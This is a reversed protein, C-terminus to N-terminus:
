LRGGLRNTPDFGCDIMNEVVQWTELICLKEFYTLDEEPEIDFYTTTTGDPKLVGNMVRRYDKRESGYLGPEEDFFTEHFGHCMDDKALMGVKPNAMIYRQMVPNAFRIQEQKLSTIATDSMAGNAQYLLEKSRMIAEDSHVMNYMAQTNNILFQSAGNTQNLVNELNQQLYNSFEPDPQSYLLANFADRGGKIVKVQM